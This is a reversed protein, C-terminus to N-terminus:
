LELALAVAVDESWQAGLATLQDLREGLAGRLYTTAREHEQRETHDRRYGFSGLRADVFGLLMAAEDL